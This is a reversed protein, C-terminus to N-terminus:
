WITHFYIVLFGVVVGGMRKKCLNEEVSYLYELWIFMTIYFSLFFIVCQKWREQWCSKDDTKGKGCTIRPFEVNM